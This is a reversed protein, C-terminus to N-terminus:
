GRRRRPMFLALLGLILVPPPNGGMSCTRSSELESPPPNKTPGDADGSTGPASIDGTSGPTGPSGTPTGGSPEDEVETRVKLTFVLKKAVSKNGKRDVAYAELILDAQDPIEFSWRYPAIALEGQPAGNVLLEVSEIGDEDSVTLEVDYPKGITKPSSSVSEPWAIAPPLNDVAPHQEGFDCDNPWEGSAASPNLPAAGCRKDPDPNGHADHCPTIDLGSQSELWPIYHHLVAWGGGYGCPLGQSGAEGEFGFSTVGILRFGRGEPLEMFLPGGSDGQCADKGGGGALLIKQEPSMFGTISLDVEHKLGYERDENYFGYGVAWVTQGQEIHVTDNGMAPPIVPIDTVAEELLCYAVDDGIVGGNPYIECKSTAVSRAPTKTSPGFLVKSMKSGCHAAYVVLRPHVLTGTCNGVGLTSPWGCEQSPTGGVIRPATPALDVAHAQARLSLFSAGFLTCMM